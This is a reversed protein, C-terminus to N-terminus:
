VNTTSVRRSLNLSIIQKIVSGLKAVNHEIYYSLWFVLTFLKLGLWIITPRLNEM